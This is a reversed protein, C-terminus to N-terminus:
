LPGSGPHAAVVREVTIAASDHQGGRDGGRGACHVVARLPGSHAATDIAANLENDQTVDAAVFRAADGLEKAAREGESSPLDVLVVQAGMGVLRRATALGLGSAGGTVLASLGEIQM